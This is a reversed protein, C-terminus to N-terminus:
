MAAIRVGKGVSRDMKERSAAAQLVQRILAPMKRYASFFIQTHGTAGNFSVKLGSPPLMFVAYDPM